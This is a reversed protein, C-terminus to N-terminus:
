GLKISIQVICVALDFKLLKKACLFKPKGVSDVTDMLAM